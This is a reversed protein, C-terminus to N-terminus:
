MSESNYWYWKWDRKMRGNGEKGLQKRLMMICMYRRTEVQPIIHEKIKICYCYCFVQMSNCFKKKNMIFLECPFEFFIRVIQVNKRISM